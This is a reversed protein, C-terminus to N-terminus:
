ILFALCLAGSFKWFSKRFFMLKGFFRLSQVNQFQMPWFLKQVVKQLFVVKNVTKSFKCTNKSLGIEKKWAWLKSRRSFELAITFSSVRKLFFKGFDANGFSKVPDKQFSGDIKGFLGFDSTKLLRPCYSSKTCRRSSILLTKQKQFSALIKKFMVKKGFFVKKLTRLIRLCYYLDLYM